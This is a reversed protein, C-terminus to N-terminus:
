YLSRLGSKTTRGLKGCYYIGSDDSTLRIIRLTCSDGSKHASFRPFDPLNEKKDESHYYLIWQLGKGPTERYWHIYDNGINNKTCTIRTNISVYKNSLPNPISIIKTSILKPFRVCVSPSVLWVSRSDSHFEM